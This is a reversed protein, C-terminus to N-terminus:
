IKKQGVRTILYKRGDTDVAFALGQVMVGPLCSWEDTPLDPLGCVEGRAPTIGKGLPRVIVVSRWM